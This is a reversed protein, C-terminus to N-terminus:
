ESELLSCWVVRVKMKIMAQSVAQFLCLGDSEKCKGFIMFGMTILM